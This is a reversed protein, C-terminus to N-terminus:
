QVNVARMVATLTVLCHDSSGWVRDVHTCEDGSTDCGDKYQVLMMNRKITADIGRLDNRSIGITDDTSFVITDFRNKAFLGDYRGQNYDNQWKKQYVHTSNPPTPHEDPEDDYVRTGQSGSDTVPRTTMGTQSALDEFGNYEGTEVNWDAGCACGTISQDAKLKNTIFLALQAIAPKQAEKWYKKRYMHTGILLIRRMDNVHSYNHTVVLWTFNRPYAKTPLNSNIDFNETGHDVVTFVSRRLFVPAYEDDGPRPDGYVDFENKLGDVITKYQHESNSFEQGFIVDAEVETLDQMVYPKRRNWRSAEKMIDDKGATLVNFTAM